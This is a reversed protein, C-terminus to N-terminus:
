EDNLFELIKKKHKHAFILMKVAWPDQLAEMIDPDIKSIKGFFESEEVRFFAALKKRNEADPENRGREWNSIAAQEIGLAKAVDMQKIKRLKRLRKIRQGILM